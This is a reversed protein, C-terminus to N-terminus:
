WRCKLVADQLQLQMERRRLGGCGTPRYGCGAQARPLCSASLRMRSFSLSYILSLSIVLPPLRPELCDVPSLTPLSSAPKTLVPLFSLFCTPLPNSRPSHLSLVLCRSNFRPSSPSTFNPCSPLMPLSSFPSHSYSSQTSLRGLM